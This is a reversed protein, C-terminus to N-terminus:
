SGNTVAGAATPRRLICEHAKRAEYAARATLFPNGNEDKKRETNVTRGDPLKMKIRYKWGGDPLKSVGPYKNKAM